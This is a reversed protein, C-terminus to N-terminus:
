RKQYAIAKTPCVTSCAQCQHCIERQIFAKKNETSVKIAAAPCVKECKKCGICTESKVKTSFAAFRGTIRLLAGFPCFHNHFVWAEFRLTFLISIVMLVLLIPLEKGLNKKSFMMIGVLAILVLYPISPHLMWKPLKKTQWKLKKALRDIPSMVTNMPCMYGCYFRGFILTAILSGVFLMLWLNMSKQFVIWLFLALFFLQIPTKMKKM